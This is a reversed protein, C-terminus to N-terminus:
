LPAELYESADFCRASAIGDLWRRDPRQPVRLHSPAVFVAFPLTESNVMEDVQKARREVEHEAGLQPAVLFAAGFRELQGRGFTRLSSWPRVTGISDREGEIISLVAEVLHDPVLFADVGDEALARLLRALSKSLDGAASQPSETLAIAARRYRMEGLVRRLRPGLKRLRAPSSPWRGPLPDTPIHADPAQGATRCATCRGCDGIHALGYTEALLAHVCIVSLPDVAKALRELEAINVQQEASRTPEIAASLMEITSCVEPRDIRITWWLKGSEDFEDEIRVVGVIGARELLLLAAANWERNTRGSQPNQAAVHDAVDDLKVRFLRVGSATLPEDIREELM